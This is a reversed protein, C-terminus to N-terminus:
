SQRAAASPKPPSSFNEEIGGQGRSPKRSQGLPSGGHTQGWFLASALRKILRDLELLKARVRLNIMGVALEDAELSIGVAASRTIPPLIRDPRVLSWFMPYIASYRVAAPMSRLSTRTTPSWSVTITSASLASRC